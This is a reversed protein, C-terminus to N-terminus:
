KRIQKKAIAMAQVKKAEALESAEKSLCDFSFM